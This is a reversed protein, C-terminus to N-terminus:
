PTILMLGHHVKFDEFDKVNLTALPLGHTLCCAAIWMDNMPRARGRKMGAASLKGWTVAVDEDGPLSPSASSGNRM